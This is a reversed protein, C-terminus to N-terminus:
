LRRFPPPTSSRPSTCGFSSPISRRLPQSVSLSPSSSSSSVVLHTRFCPYRSQSRPTAFHSPSTRVLHWLYTTSSSSLRYRSPPLPRSPRACGSLLGARAACRRHRAPRPAGQRPAPRRVGRAARRRRRRVPRRRTPALGDQGGVRAHAPGGAHVAVAAHPHQAWPRVSAVVRVVLVRDVARAVVLALLAVRQPVGPPHPGSGLAVVDVLEAVPVVLGVGVDHYDHEGPPRAPARRRRRVRPPPPAYQALALAVDFPLPDAPALRPPAQPGRAVQAAAAAPCRCRALPRARARGRLAHRRRPGLGRAGRRPRRRELQARV